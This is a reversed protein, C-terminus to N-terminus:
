HKQMLLERLHNVDINKKMETLEADDRPNLGLHDHIEDLM